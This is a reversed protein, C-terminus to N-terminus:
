GPPRAVEHGAKMCHPGTEETLLLHSETAASTDPPSQAINTGGVATRPPDTGDVGGSQDQKQQTFVPFSSIFSYAIPGNM